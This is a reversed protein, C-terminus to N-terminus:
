FAHRGYWDALKETEAAGVLSGNGGEGSDMGAWTNSSMSGLQKSAAQKEGRIM